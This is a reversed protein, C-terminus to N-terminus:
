QAEWNVSISLAPHDSLPVGASDFFQTENEWNAVSIHLKDSPRYLLRDIHNPETCDVEACSDMLGTPDMLDEILPIDVPDDPHLNTDGIFIIADDSTNDEIHTVLQSVHASRAAEDEPGGGAEMHTNYLHLKQHGLNLVLWQFGTSALCDSAGDVTGHCAEFHIGEHREVTVRSFVALGSGYVRDDVADSFRHQEAHESSAELIDHNDDGFDEQLGVVDFDNLLPAIQQMRATTDDGTIEAPLGHVNYTLISITGASIQGSDVKEASCGLLIFLM